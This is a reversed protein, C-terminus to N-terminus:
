KGIGSRKTSHISAHMHLLSFNSRDMEVELHRQAGEDYDEVSFGQRKLEQLVLPIRKPPTLYHGSHNIVNCIFDGDKLGAITLMGAAFPKELNGLSSHHMYGTNPIYGGSWNRKYAVFLNGSMDMVFMFEPHKGPTGVPMGTWAWVAVSKQGYKQAALRHSELGKETYVVLKSALPEQLDKRAGMVSMALGDDYQKMHNDTLKEIVATM